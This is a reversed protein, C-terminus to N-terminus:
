PNGGQSQRIRGEFYAALRPKKAAEFQKKLDQLAATRAPDKNLVKYQESAKSWDVNASVTQASTVRVSDLSSKFSEVTNLATLWVQANSSDLKSAQERALKEYAASQDMFPQAMQALAGKLQEIAAEDLGQPLPSNLIEAGLDRNAFTLIGAMKVRTLQDAGELYKESYKVLQKLGAVRSQFKAQSRKGYFDIKRQKQDLKQMEAIVYKAWAAGTHQNSGLLMKATDSNGKGQSELEEAIWLKRSASWGLKLHSPQIASSDKLSQFLLIEENESTSKSKAFADVAKNLTRQQDSGKQALEYLISVKLWSKMDTAKKEFLEAAEAFHASAEYESALEETKGELKLSTLIADQDKLKVALIKANSCSKEKFIGQVCYERFVALAQPTEGMAAAKQFKTEHSIRTMDKLEDAMSPDSKIKPNTLWSEAQAIAKDYNKENAYIDLALNQSQTATTDAKADVKALEVFLPLAKSYEKKEYWARATLYKYERAKQVNKEQAALISTEEIIIEQNKLKQATAIRIKRLRMEENKNGLKSADSIWTKVQSMKVQDDTEAAIWGDIMRERIDSKPFLQLYVMITRQFDKAYQTQTTREGDLQICLRKMIKDTESVQVPDTPLQSKSSEAQELIDRFADWNRSGYYEELLRAQFRVEPKRDNVYALFKTGAPRNGNVFFAEGTELMIGPRSIKQALEEMQVLEKQGDTARHSLFFVYDRLSEERIQKKSDYLAAQMETLAEELKNSNYLLWARRFRAYSCVDGGQCMNIAMQYYRDAEADSKPNSEKELIEASRLASERQINPIGSNSALDQFIPKAKATEFLDAYLRAIQFQIKSKAKGAAPSYAGDGGSAAEQYLQLSRKQLVGIEKFQEPTPDAYKSIRKTAEDFYMDALRLTLTPRTPDKLSVNKRLSEIEKILSMDARASGTVGVILISLFALISGGSFKM